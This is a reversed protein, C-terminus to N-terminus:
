RQPEFDGLLVQIEDPELHVQQQSHAPPSAAPPSREPYAQDIQLLAERLFRKIEEPSLGYRASFEATLALNHLLTKMFETKVEMSAQTAKLM